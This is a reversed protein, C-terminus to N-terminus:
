VSGMVGYCRAEAIYHVDVAILVSSIGMREYVCYVVAGNDDDKGHDCLFCQDAALRYVDGDLTGYIRLNVSPCENDRSSENASAETPAFILCEPYNRGGNYAVVGVYRM